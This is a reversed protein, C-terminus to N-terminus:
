QLPFPIDPQIDLSLVKGGPMAVACILASGGHRTGIDLVRWGNGSLYSFMMAAEVQEMRSIHKSGDAAFLFALDAFTSLTNPPSFREDLTITHQYVEGEDTSKIVM